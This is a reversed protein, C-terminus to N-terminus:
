QQRHRAQFGQASDCLVRDPTVYCSYVGSQSQVRVSNADAHAVSALLESLASMTFLCCMIVRICKMM